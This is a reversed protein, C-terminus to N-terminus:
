RIGFAALAQRLISTFRAHLLLLLFFQSLSARPLPSIFFLTSFDDPHRSVLCVRFCSYLICLPSFCTVSFEENDRQQKKQKLWSLLLVLLFPLLHVVQTSGRERHASKLLHNVVIVGDNRRGDTRLVVHVHQAEDILVQQLRPARNEKM